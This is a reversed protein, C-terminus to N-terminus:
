YAWWDVRQYKSEVNAVERMTYEAVRRLRDGFRGGQYYLLETQLPHSHDPHLSVGLLASAIHTKEEQDGDGSDMGSGILEREVVRDDWGEGEM